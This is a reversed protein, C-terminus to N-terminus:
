GARSCPRDGSSVTQRHGREDVLASDSTGSACGRCRGRSYGRVPRVVHAERTGPRACNLTAPVQSSSLLHPDLDRPDCRIPADATRAPCRLSPHRPESPRVRQEPRGSSKGAMGALVADSWRDRDVGAVPFEGDGLVVESPGQPPQDRGRQGFALGGLWRLRGIFSLQSSALCRLPGRRHPPRSHRWDGEVRAMEPVASFNASPTAVTVRTTLIALNMKVAQQVSRM